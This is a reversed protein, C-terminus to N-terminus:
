ILGFEWAALGTLAALGVTFAARANRVLSLGIPDPKPLRMGKAEIHMSVVMTLFGAFWLVVGIEACLVLVELM